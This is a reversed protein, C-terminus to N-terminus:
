RGELAHVIICISDLHHVGRKNYFAYFVGIDILIAVKGVMYCNMLWRPIGKEVRARWGLARWFPGPIGRFKDMERPAIRLALDLAESLRRLRYRRMIKELVRVHETKM